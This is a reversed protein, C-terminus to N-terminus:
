WDFGDVKVIGSVRGLDNGVLYELEQRAHLVDRAYCCFIRHRGNKDYYHCDYANMATTDIM